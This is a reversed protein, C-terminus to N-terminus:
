PIAAGRAKGVSGRDMLFGGLGEVAQSVPRLRCENAPSLLFTLMRMAMGTMDFHWKV